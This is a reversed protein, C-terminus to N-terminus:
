NRSKSITIFWHHFPVGGIKTALSRLIIIKTISSITEGKKIEITSIILFSSAISQIILYKIIM